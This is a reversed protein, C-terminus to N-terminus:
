IFLATGIQFVLVAALWALAFTFGIQAWIFRGGFEQRMASIAVMCPVYLLVFVCFAVAAITAAEPSGASRTFSAVLATQLNTTDEEEEELGLVNFEPLEVQKLLAAM